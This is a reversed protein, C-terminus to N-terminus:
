LESYEPEDFACTSADGETPRWLISDGYYTRAFSSNWCESGTIEGGLDGGSLKVDSRGTGNGLWRTRIAAREPQSGNNDIDRHLVFEFAGPGAATQSFAYDADVLRGTEDDRVERFATDITVDGGADRSYDYQASGVERPPNILTQAADWDVLFEGKGARGGLPDHHGSIVAVFADDDATKPKADLVYDFGDGARRVTFRFTDAALPETHPGWVAEDATLSTPPHRIIAEVLAGVWLLGGNVVVAIGVTTRYFEATQGLATESQEVDASTLAKPAPAAVRLNQRSPSAARFEDAGDPLGECATLATACLLATLRKM